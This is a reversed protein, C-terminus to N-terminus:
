ASPAVVASTGLVTGSGSLARVEYLAATPAPITTEFGSRPTVSVATMHGSGSGTLLQWSAVDTAGNWSAYVASAAGSRHAAIAPPESPQGSWVERYVRYSNEGRPLQADYVIEGRSNFETL